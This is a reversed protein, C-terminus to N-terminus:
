PKAKRPLVAPEPATLRDEGYVLRSAEERSFVGGVVFAQVRLERNQENLQAIMDEKARLVREWHRDAVKERWYLIGVPFLVALCGCAIAWGPGMVEVLRTFAQIFSRAAEITGTDPM